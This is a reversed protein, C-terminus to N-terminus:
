VSLLTPTMAKLDGAGALAADALGDAGTLVHDAYFRALTTKSTLWADDAGKGTRARAELATKALLWGGIVNGALKGYAVAGALADENGARATMESTARDLAALASRLRAGVGALDGDFDGLSGIMEDLLERMARGGEMALKRGVLDNAQIGNTGEYIPPIRADRYHQAAGTEEIFGMGGHVQVGLDSVEVGVDTSWAKAIPTLLEERLKAARRAEDTDALRARDAAVGTMLCIARAAEIKAKSLTLMRRVDPHDIIAAPRDTSWVSRGQRREKAYALARQYAMDAIGVGQIGVMQRAANMMVFMHALGQGEVGVLEAYAAEHAMVCTPSAHIGLKHEVSVPKATNAVGASGDENVLVKPVLFLSLGRIGEPAGRTRALVMGIINDTCDHDGWTIYIKQGTLRWNGNGDPEAMSRVAGLDSGAQPETLQMTGTWEGSVLRPLYLAKQRDTGHQQLAEIAAASLTPCLAFAMNAANVMEYVALELAKPLGQGGHEPDATLSTWGGQAFARYAEPFGKPTRVQGNELRSGELDGVRNLPALVDACLSGAGELVAEKLDHDLGPLADAGVASLTLSLDRLPPRYTM